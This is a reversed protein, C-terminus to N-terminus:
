RPCRLGSQRVGLRMVTDRHVGTLHGTARISCGETLASVVATQKNRPLANMPAIWSTSHGQLPYFTGVSIAINAGVIM